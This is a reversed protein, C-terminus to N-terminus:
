LDTIMVRGLNFFGISIPPVTLGICLFETQDMILFNQVVDGSTKEHTVGDGLSTSAILLFFYFVASVIWIVKLFAKRRNVEIIFSSRLQNLSAAKILEQLKVWAFMEMSLVVCLMIVSFVEFTFVFSLKLQFNHRLDYFTLGMYILKTLQSIALATM